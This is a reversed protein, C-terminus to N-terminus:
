ANLLEACANFAGAMFQAVIRKQLDVEEIEGLDFWQYLFARLKAEARYDKVM